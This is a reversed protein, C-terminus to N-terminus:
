ERSLEEMPTKSHRYAKIPSCQHAELTDVELPTAKRGGPHLVLGGCQICRTIGAHRNM